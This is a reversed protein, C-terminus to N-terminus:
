PDVRLILLQFGEPSNLKAETGSKGVVDIKALPHILVCAYDGVTPIFGPNAMAEQALQNNVGLQSAPQPATGSPNPSIVYWLAQQVYTWGYLAVYAECNNALYNISGWPYNLYAAPFNSGPLERNLTSFFEVEYAAPLPITIFEEACLTNYWIEEEIIGPIEAPLVTGERFKAQILYIENFAVKADMDATEPIPIWPLLELNADNGDYSCNGVTFDFVGDTGGFADPNGIEAMATDTFEGVYILMDTGDAMALWIEYTFIEGKIDVQDPYEICLPAGIGNWDANSNINLDNLPVNSGKYFVKVSFIAPFDYGDFKQDFYPNGENRVHWEDFFKTCIDGYFCVTHIETVAYKFWVFGFNEYDYPRYCLVDIDVRLKDFVPVDFRLNLGKLEWLVQYYSGIMPAAWLVTGDAAKVIFETVFYGGSPLKLAETETKNNLTVLKLTYLTVAQDPGMITVDVYSPDLDICTPVSDDYPSIEGNDKASFLEKSSVQDLLFNNIDFVVEQVAQQDTLVLPSEDNNCSTIFMALFLGLAIKFLHLNKM